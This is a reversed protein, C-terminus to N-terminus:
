EFPVSDFLNISRNPNAYVSLRNIEICGDNSNKQNFQIPLVIMNKSFTADKFDKWRVRLSSDNNFLVAENIFIDSSTKISSVELVRFLTKTLEIELASTNFYSVNTSQMSSHIM